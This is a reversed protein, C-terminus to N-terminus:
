MSVHELDRGEPFTWYKQLGWRVQDPGSLTNEKSQNLFDDSILGENCKCYRKVKAMYCVRVQLIDTLTM